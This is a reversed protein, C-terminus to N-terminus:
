QAKNNEIGPFTKFTFGEGPFIEDVKIVEGTRGNVQRMYIPKVPPMRDLVAAVIADLDVAADMGDKGAVGQPGPPGTQGPQGDVGDRGPEGQPGVPGAPGRDGAPGAPGPFPQVPQSPNVPVYGPPCQQQQQPISRFQIIREATEDGKARCRRLFDILHSARPIGSTAQVVYDVVEGNHTLPTGAPCRTSVVSCVQGLSNWVPGGSNGQISIDAGIPKVDVSGAHILHVEGEFVRLKNLNSRDFGAMTLKAGVTLPITTVTQIPVGNPEKELTITAIDHGFKCTTYITAHVEESQFQCDINGAGSVVHAATLVTRPGILVGTGMGTESGNTAVIRCISRYNQEVVNALTFVQERTQTQVLRTQPTADFDDAQSWAVVFLAVVAVVIVYWVVRKM